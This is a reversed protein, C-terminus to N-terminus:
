FEGILQVISDGYAGPITCACFRTATTLSVMFRCCPPRNTSRTRSTKFRLLSNLSSPSGQQRSTDALIVVTPTPAFTRWGPQKSMTCADHTKQTTSTSGRDCRGRGHCLFRHKNQHTSTFRHTKLFIDKLNHPEFHRAITTYTRLFPILTGMCKIVDLVGQLVTQAQSTLFIGVFSLIPPPLALFYIDNAEIIQTLCAASREHERFRAWEM